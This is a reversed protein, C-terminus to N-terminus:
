LYEGKPFFRGTKPNFELGKKNLKNMLKMATKIMSSLDGEGDEDESSEEQVVKKKKTKHEVKLALNKRPTSTTAVVGDLEYLEHAIIRGLADTPSMRELDEQRFLTAIVQHEPRPLISIIKRVVDEDAIKKVNLAKIKEVLVNLRSYMDNVRENQNM